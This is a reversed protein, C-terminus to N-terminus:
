PTVNLSFYFTSGEGEKSEVWIKGNNKEVFEKCLVLGLGTGKEKDTGQTVHKTDVRFLKKLNSPSIGVGEDKVAVVVKNSVPQQISLIIEKDPYTFKIANSLLNRVVTNISNKDAYVLTRGNHKVLIQLSKSKAQAEFLECNSKILPVLDFSKPQLKLEGAQSRSWELLNELLSSASTLSKDFDKALMQIEELSMQDAHNILLNSFSKLSHLPSRLDHSIISFFKDKTSNLEHLQFNVQKLENNKVLIDDRQTAIKDTQEKLIDNQKEIQKKQEVAERTKFEVLKKLNEQKRRLNKTKFKVFAIILSMGFVIFLVIAWAQQYWPPLIKFQFQALSGEHNYINKSKVKFTYTGADLNTYEKKNAIDWSSWEKDYGELKYSFTNLEVADYSTGTFEFTFNNEDSNLIHTKEEPKVVNLALTSDGVAAETIITAFGTERQVSGKENYRYLGESGGIWVVGDYEPDPYVFSISPDKLIKFPAQILKYNGDSQKELKALRDMDTSHSVFWINEKDDKLPFSLGVGQPLISYDPIFLDSSDQAPAKNLKYFGKQTAFVLENDVVLMEISPEQPLGNRHTYNVFKFAGGEDSLKYVGQNVLSFWHDNKYTISSFCQGGIQSNITEFTKPLGDKVKVAQVGGTSQLILHDQYVAGNNLRRIKEMLRLENGEVLHMGTHNNLFLKEGISFLYYSRLSSGIKVFAKEDKRYLGKTTALYLKNQHKHMHWILGLGASRTNWYKFSALGSLQSIGNQTTAWLNNGSFLLQRVDNDALGNVQNIHYVLEGNSIYYIGNRTTGIALGMRDNIRHVALSTIGNKSLQEKLENDFLDIRSVKGALLYTDGKQTILLKGKFTNATGMILQDTLLEGSDVKRFTNGRLVCLGVKEINAYLKNDFTFVQEASALPTIEFPIDGTNGVFQLEGNEYKLLHKRGIFFGSNGLTQVDIPNISDLKQGIVTYFGKGDEGASVYGVNDTTAVFIRGAEDVALDYASKGNAISINKWNTGDFRLLGYWNGFYIRGLSDKVIDFNSVSARYDKANYNKM